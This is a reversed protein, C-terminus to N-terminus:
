MMTFLQSLHEGLEGFIAAAHEAVRSVAARRRDAFQRDNVEIVRRLARCLRLPVVVDPAHVVAALGADFVVEIEEIPKIPKRRQAVLHLREPQALEQM